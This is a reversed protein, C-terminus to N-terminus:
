SNGLAVFLDPTGTNLKFDWGNNDFNMAIILDDRRDVFSTCM